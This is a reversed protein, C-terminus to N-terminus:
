LRKGEATAKIEKGAQVVAPAAADAPNAVRDILRHTVGYVLTFVATLLLVGAETLATGFEPGLDLGASGLWTVLLAVLPAVLRSILARM